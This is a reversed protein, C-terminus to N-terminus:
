GKKSKKGKGKKKRKEKKEAKKAKKREEGAKLHDRLEEPTEIMVDYWKGYHECDPPNHKRCKKPRREYITCLNDDDLYICRGEYVTHWKKGTIAIRVTDYQLQWMYHKIDSKTKPKDIVLVLDHCCKAPCDSCLSLTRVKTPVSPRVQPAPTAM